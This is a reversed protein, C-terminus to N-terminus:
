AQKEGAGAGASAAERARRAILRALEGRARAGLPGERAEEVLLEVSPDLSLLVADLADREANGANPIEETLKKLLQPRLSCAPLMLLMPGTLALRRLVRYAPRDATLALRETLWALTEVENWKLVLSPNPAAPKTISAAAAGTGSVPAASPMEEEEDKSARNSEDDDDDDEDEEEDKDEDKDEGRGGDLRSRARSQNRSRKRAAASRKPSPCSGPAHRELFSYVLERLDVDDEGPAGTAPLEHDLEGRKRRSPKSGPAHRELFSYVLERLDDKDPAGTTPLERDLEGRQLAAYFPEGEYDASVIKRLRM